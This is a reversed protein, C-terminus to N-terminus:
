ARHYGYTREPTAPKEAVWTAWLSLGLAAADSAMHGADALLALSNSLLGGVIEDVMYTVALGLAWAMRKRNGENDRNLPM